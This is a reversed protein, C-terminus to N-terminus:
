PMRDTSNNNVCIINTKDRITKLSVDDISVDIPMFKKSHLSINHNHLLSEVM